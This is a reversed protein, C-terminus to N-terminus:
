LTHSLDIDGIEKISDGIHLKLVTFVQDCFKPDDFRISGIYPIGHHRIRLFVENDFRDNMSAKELTGIEGLPMDTQDQIRTTWIPPWTKFGSKRTMLPHDRLQV